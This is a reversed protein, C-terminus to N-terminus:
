ARILEVTDEGRPQTIDICSQLQEVFADRREPACRASLIPAGSDVFSLPQNLIVVGAADSYGTGAPEKQFEVVISRLRGLDIILKGARPAFVAPAHAAMTRSVVDDFAMRTAGQAEINQFFIGALDSRSVDVRDGAISAAIYRCEEVHRTLWPTDAESLISSMAWLAESRGVYPQYPLSADTLSCAARIGLLEAVAIFRRANKRATAFDGGFNGHDAVRVDLGVAKVSVAIKKSLLSAIVLPWLAQASVQQRYEFFARDLPAIRDGGDFHAYGCKGLISTVERLSIQTRYGEIQALIDLGGAPRGPVALKPVVFGAARLYLPCLVTSLSSPGGTSPVDATNEDDWALKEGSDALALALDAIWDNTVDVREADSVWAAFDAIM